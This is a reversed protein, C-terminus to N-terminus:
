SLLYAAANQSNVVVTSMMLKAVLLSVRVAATTCTWKLEFVDGKERWMTSSDWDSEHVKSIRVLLFLSWFVKKKGSRLDFHRPKKQFVALFRGDLAEERFRFITPGFLNLSPGGKRGDFSPPRLAALRAVRRWPERTSFSLHKVSPNGPGDSCHKLSIEWQHQLKSAKKTFLNLQHIPTKKEFFPNQYSPEIMLTFWWKPLMYKPIQEWPVWCAFRLDFHWRHNRPGGGQTYWPLVGWNPLHNPFHRYVQSPQVVFFRLLLVYSSDRASADSTPFTTPPLHFHNKKRFRPGACLDLTKNWPGSGLM